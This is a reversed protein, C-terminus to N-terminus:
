LLKNNVIMEKMLQVEPSLTEKRTIAYYYREMNLNEVDIIKLKNSKLEETIASISIFAFTNSNRLYSKISENNELIIETKLEDLKLRHRLLSSRIIELTGSGKERLVFRLKRLEGIRIIPKILTSSRTCLVIEDKMFPVYDIAKRKTNGEVVGLDTQHDLLMFEAKETNDTKIELGIHPYASKFSALFQPLVYQAATTSAGIRILGHHKLNLFRIEADMEAHLSFIKQAYDRLIEGKPTLKLRNGNREFLSTGYFKEIESIHRSVAPQSIFLEDAAKTFSLRQAVTLFVKLRFDFM